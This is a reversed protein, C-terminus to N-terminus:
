LRGWRRRMTWEIGLLGVILLFVASSDWLHIVTRRNVRVMRPPAYSFSDEGGLGEREEDTPKRDSM